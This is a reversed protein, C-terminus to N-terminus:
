RSSTRGGEPAERVLVHATEEVGECQLLPVDPVRDGRPVGTGAYM